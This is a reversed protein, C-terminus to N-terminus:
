LKQENAATASLDAAGGDAGGLTSRGSHNAPGHVGREIMCNTVSASPFTDPLASSPGSFNVILPLIVGATSPFERSLLRAEEPLRQIAQSRAQSLNWRCGALNKEQPSCDYRRFPPRV